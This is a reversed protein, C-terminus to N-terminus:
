RSFEIFGKSHGKQNGLTFNQDPQELSHSPLYPILFQIVKNKYFDYWINDPKSHLEYFEFDILVVKGRQTVGFQFDKPIVGKQKLVSLSFDVQSLIALANKKVFDVQQNDIRQSPITLVFDFYQTVLAMRGDKLVELAKFNPIFELDKLHKIIKAEHIIDQAKRKQWDIVKVFLPDKKDKSVLVESWGSGDLDTLPEFSKEQLFSSLFVRECFYSASFASPSLFLLTSILKWV